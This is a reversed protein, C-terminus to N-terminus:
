GKSKPLLGKRELETVHEQLVTLIYGPLGKGALAAAARLKRALDRPAGRVYLVTNEAERDTRAMGYVIAYRACISLHAITIYALLSIVAIM